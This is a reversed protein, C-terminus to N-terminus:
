ILNLWKKASINDTFYAERDSVVEPSRYVEPQVFAVSDINQSVISDLMLFEGLWKLCEVSEFNHANTDILLNYRGGKELEKKIKVGWNRLQELTVYDPFRSVYCDGEKQVFIEVKRIGVVEWM